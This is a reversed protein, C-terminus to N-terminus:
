HCAGLVYDGFKSKASTSAVPKGLGKLEVTGGPLGSTLMDSMANEDQTKLDALRGVSICANFGTANFQVWHVTGDNDPHATAQGNFRFRTKYENLMTKAFTGDFPDIKPNSRRYYAVTDLMAAAQVKADSYDPIGAVPNSTDFATSTTLSYKWSEPALMTPDSNDSTTGTGANVMSDQELSLEIIFPTKNADTGQLYYGPAFWGWGVSRPYSGLTAACRKVSNGDLPQMTKANPISDETAGLKKAFAIVEDCIKTNDPVTLSATSLSTCTDPSAYSEPCPLAGYNFVVNTPNAFYPILSLNKTVEAQYADSMPQLQQVRADPTQVKSESLHTLGYNIQNIISCAAILVFLAIGLCTFGVVRSVTSGTSQKPWDPLNNSM